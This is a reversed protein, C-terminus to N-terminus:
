QKIGGNIDLEFATSKIATEVVGSIRYINGGPLTVVVNVSLALQNEILWNLDRLAASEIRARNFTTAPLTKALYQTESRYERETENETLNGWWSFMPEQGNDDENGGFMSLLIATQLDDTMEVVGGIVNIDGDNLGQLLLVDGQQM